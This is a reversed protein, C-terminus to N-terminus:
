QEGCVRPQVAELQCSTATVQEGCVRPQVATMAAVSACRRNGACAPSFRGRLRRMAQKVSQEGCVRPQVPQWGADITIPAAQEGCVRPQVAAVAARACRGRNGACAPSFRDCDSRRPMIQRNGACAPSFRSPQRADRPRVDQEGCVRPQVTMSRAANAASHRNGACAPSFRRGCGCPPRGQEGCVRPQVAFRATRISSGRSNGACAPSFRFRQVRVRRGRRFGSGVDAVGIQGNAAEGALKANALSGDRTPFGALLDGVARM